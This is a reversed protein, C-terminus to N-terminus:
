SVQISNQLNLQIRGEIKIFIKSIFKSQVLFKKFNKSSVKKLGIKVRYFGKWCMRLLVPVGPLRKCSQDSPGRVEPNELLAIAEEVWGVGHIQWYHIRKRESRM